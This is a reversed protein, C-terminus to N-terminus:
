NNYLWLQIEDQVAKQKEQLKGNGKMKEQIMKATEM